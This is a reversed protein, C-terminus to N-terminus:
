VSLKDGLFPSDASVSLYLITTEPKKRDGILMQYEELTMYTPM